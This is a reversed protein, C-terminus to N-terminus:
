MEFCSPKTGCFDLFAAGDEEFTLPLISIEVVIADDENFVGIFIHLDREIQGISVLHIPDGFKQIRWKKRTSFGFRKEIEHIRSAAYPALVDTTESHINM